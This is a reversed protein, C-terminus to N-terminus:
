VRSASKWRKGNRSGTSGARGPEDGPTASRPARYRRLFRRQPGAGKRGVRSRPVGVPTRAERGVNVYPRARMSGALAASVVMPAVPPIAKVESSAAGSPLRYAWEFPLRKRRSGAVPEGVSTPGMTSPSATNWGTPKAWPGCPTQQRHHALGVVLPLPRGSQVLSREM